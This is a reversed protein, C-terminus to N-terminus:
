EVASIRLERFLIACNVRTKCYNKCYKDKDNCLLHMDNGKEPQIGSRKPSLGILPEVM